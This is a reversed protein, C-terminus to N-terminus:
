FRMWACEFQDFHVVKHRSSFPFLKLQELYMMVYAVFCLQMQYAKWRSKPVFKIFHYGLTFKKPNKEIRLAERYPLGLRTGWSVHIQLKWSCTPQPLQSPLGHKHRHRLSIIRQSNQRNKERPRNIGLHRNRYQTNHWITRPHIIVQPRPNIKRVLPPEHVAFDSFVKWFAHNAPM